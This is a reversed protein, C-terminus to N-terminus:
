HALIFLPSDDAFSNSIGALIKGDSQVAAGVVQSPDDNSGPFSVTVTGGTGFSSDLTGNTNLRVVAAAFGIRGGVIIQGNSQLGVVTGITGMNNFIGASDLFIGGTAFTSYLSGAQGMATSFSCLLVTTTLLAARLFISPKSRHVGPQRRLTARFLFM